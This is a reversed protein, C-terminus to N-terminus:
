KERSIQWAMEECLSDLERAAYEGLHSKVITRTKKMDLAGLRILTKLDMKDKDRGAAMKLAALYEPRVIKVPLGADVSCNIADAYLRSYEDNRVIIDIPHRNGPSLAAYGGFSLQKVLTLGSLMTHSAFDVDKTMRDSGYIEMAVGGVLVVDVHEREAIEAIEAITQEIASPDLFKTM